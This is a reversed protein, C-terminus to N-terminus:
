VPQYALCVLVNILLTFNVGTDAPLLPLFATIPAQAPKLLIAASQQSLLASISRYM